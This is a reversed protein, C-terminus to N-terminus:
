SRRSGRAAELIARAFSPVSRELGAVLDEFSIPPKKLAAAQEHVIEVLLQPALDFLDCLFDDPSQAEIGTPMEGFDRLNSTVIVQAGCRVAAATVHRDKEHNRMAPILAAYDTVLSEPFANMMAARRRDAQAQTIRGNEVLNRCTEDLIESTWYMQYLGAAAARLLTDCLACPYLVNADLVVRFPSPFM